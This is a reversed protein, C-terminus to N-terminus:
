RITINITKRDSVGQNDTVKIIVQIKGTNAFGSHTLIRENFSGTNELSFGATVAWESIVGDPDYATVYESLSEGINLTINEKVLIIPPRNDSHTTQVGSGNITGACAGEFGSVYDTEMVACLQYNKGENQSIYQYVNGMPNAPVNGAFTQTNDNWCTDPNYGAPCGRLKNLPDVPLSIGLDMGLTDQWSPWASISKNPLYTGADLKPYEGVAQYYNNLYMEIDRINALRRVDRVIGAKGSDCYIGNDNGCHLDVFCSYGTESNDEVKRCDGYGKQDLINVNFTWNNLLQGFIDQTNSNGEGDPLAQTYSLIYINIYLSPICEGVSGSHTCEEGWVKGNCEQAAKNVSCVLTEPTGSDINAASVYVSRGDRVAQYGDVILQSPSGQNKINELYWRTPSVSNPNPMVRVAIGDVSSQANVEKSDHILLFSVVFFGILCLSFIIKKFNIKM